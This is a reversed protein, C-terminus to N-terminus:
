FQVCFAEWLQKVKPYQTLFGSAIGDTTFTLLSQKKQNAKFGLIVFHYGGKNLRKAQIM